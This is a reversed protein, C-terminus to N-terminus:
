LSYPIFVGIEWSVVAVQHEDILLHLFVCYTCLKLRWVQSVSTDVPFIFVRICCILRVFMGNVLCWLLWIHRHKSRPWPCSSRASVSPLHEARNTNLCKILKKPRHSSSQNMKLRTPAMLPNFGSGEPLFHIFHCLCECPFYYILLVFLRKWLGSHQVTFGTLAVSM